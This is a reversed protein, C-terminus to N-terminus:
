GGLHPCPSMAVPSTQSESSAEFHTQMARAVKANEQQQLIRERVLTLQLFSPQKGVGVERVGEGM